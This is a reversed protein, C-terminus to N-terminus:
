EVLKSSVWSDNISIYLSKRVETLSRVTSNIIITDRDVESAELALQLEDVTYIKATNCFARWILLRNFWNSAQKELLKFVKDISCGTPPTVSEDVAVILICDHLIEFSAALEAGHAKWSSVFEQLEISLSSKEEDNLLRDSGFFWVRSNDPLRELSM